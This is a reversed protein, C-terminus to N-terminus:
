RPEIVKNNGLEGTDFRVFNEYPDDPKGYTDVHNKVDGGVGYTSLQFNESSGEGRVKVRNKM